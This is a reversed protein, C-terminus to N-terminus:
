QKRSNEWIWTWKYPLPTSPEIVLAQPPTFRWHKPFTWLTMLEWLLVASSFAQCHGAALWWRTSATLAPGPCCGLFINSLFLCVALPVGQLAIGQLSAWPGHIFLWGIRIWPDYNASRQDLSTSRLKPPHSTPSSRKHNVQMVTEM